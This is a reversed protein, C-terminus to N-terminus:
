ALVEFEDMPHKHLSAHKYGCSYFDFCISCLINAKNICRYSSCYALKSNKNSMIGALVFTLDIIESKIVSAVTDDKTDKLLIECAQIQALIIERKDLCASHGSETFRYSISKQKTNYGCIKGEVQIQVESEIL